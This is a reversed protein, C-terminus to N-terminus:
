IYLPSFQHLHVQRFFVHDNIIILHASTQSLFFMYKLCIVLYFGNSNFFIGLGGIHIM